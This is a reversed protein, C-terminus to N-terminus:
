KKDIRSICLLLSELKEAPIMQDTSNCTQNVRKQLYFGLCGCKIGM